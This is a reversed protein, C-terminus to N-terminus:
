LNTPATFPHVQGERSVGESDCKSRSPGEPRRSEVHDCRLTPSPKRRSKRENKSFFFFVVPGVQGSIGEMEVQVQAMWRWKKKRGVFCGVLVSGNYGHLLFLSFPSDLRRHTRGAAHTFENDGVHTEWSIGGDSMTTSSGDQPSYFLFLLSVALIWRTIRVSVIALPEASRCGILSWRAACRQRTM